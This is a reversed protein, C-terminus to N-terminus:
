NHYRAKIHEESTYNNDYNISSSDIFTTIIEQTKEHRITM